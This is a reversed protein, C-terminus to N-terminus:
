MGTQTDPINQPEACTLQLRLKPHCLGLRSFSLQDAQRPRKQAVEFPIGPTDPYEFVPSVRGLVAVPRGDPLIDFPRRDSHSQRLVYPRMGEPLDIRHLKKVFVAVKFLNLPSKIM